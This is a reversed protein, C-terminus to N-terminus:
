PRRYGDIETDSFSLYYDLSDKIGGSSVQGKFFGYWGGNVRVKFPSEAEGTNTVFNIAGGMSNGGYRLANAGKWIEIHQTAMLDITEFDSFGDADQYPIGNVLINLGRMHFNNRLGSGRISFQTEDAGFRPQAFVGPTLDLVDKLNNARSNEIQIEEVLATSGPVKGLEVLMDATITVLEELEKINLELHLDVPEDPGIMIDKSISQLGAANAYIVYHGAALGTFEFSGTGTTSVTRTLNSGSAALIVEAGGLPQGEPGTISGKLTLSEAYCVILTSSFFIFLASFWTRFM